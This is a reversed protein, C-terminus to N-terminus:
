HRPSTAKTSSNIIFTQDRDSHTRNAIIPTLVEDQAWFALTM